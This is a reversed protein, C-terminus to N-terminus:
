QLSFKLFFVIIKLIEQPSHLLTGEEESFLSKATELLKSHKKFSFYKKFSFFNKYKRFIPNFIMDQTSSGRAIFKQEGDSKGGVIRFFYVVTTNQNQTLKIKQSM